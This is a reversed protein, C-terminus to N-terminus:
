YLGRMCVFPEDRTPRQGGCISYRPPRGSIAHRFTFRGELWLAHDFLRADDGDVAYLKWFMDTQHMGVLLGLDDDDLTIIWADVPEARALEKAARRARLASIVEAIAPSFLVVVFPGGVWWFSIDVLAAVFAAAVFATWAVIRWVLAPRELFALFRDIRRAIRHSRPSV